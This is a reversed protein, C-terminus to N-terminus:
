FLVTHTHTHKHTGPNRPQGRAHTPVNIEYENTSSGEVVCPGEGQERENESGRERVCVRVGESGCLTSRVHLVRQVVEVGM